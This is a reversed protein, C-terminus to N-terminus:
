YKADKEKSIAYIAKNFELVQVLKQDTINKDSKETELTKQVELDMSSNFKSLYSTKSWFEQDETIAYFNGNEYLLIKTPVLDGKLKLDPGWDLTYAAKSKSSKAQAYSASCFVLSFFLISLLKM